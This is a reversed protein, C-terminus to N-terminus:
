QRVEDYAVDLGIGWSTRMVEEGCCPCVADEIGPLIGPPVIFRLWDRGEDDRYVCLVTSQDVLKRAGDGEVKFTHGIDNYEMRPVDDFRRYDDVIGVKVEGNRGSALWEGRWGRCQCRDRRMEIM